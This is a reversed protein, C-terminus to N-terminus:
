APELFQRWCVRVCVCVCVLGWEEVWAFDPTALKSRLVFDREHNTHNPHNKPIDIVYDKKEIAQFPHM